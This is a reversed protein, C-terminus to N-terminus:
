SWKEGPCLLEPLFSWKGISVCIPESATLPPPNPGIDWRASRREGTSPNEMSTQSLIERRKPLGQSLPSLLARNNFCGMKMAAAHVPAPSRAYEPSRQEVTMSMDSRAILDPPNLRTKLCKGTPDRDRTGGLGWALYELNEKQIPTSPMLLDPTM